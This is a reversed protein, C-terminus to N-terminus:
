YLEVLDLTSSHLERPGSGMKLVLTPSWKIYLTGMKICIFKYWRNQKSLFMLPNIRENLLCLSLLIISLWSPQDIIVEHPNLYKIVCVCSLRFWTMIPYVLSILLHKEKPRMLSYNGPRHSSHSFSIYFWYAQILSLLLCRHSPMGWFRWETGLSSSSLIPITIIESLWPCGRMMCMCPPQNRLLINFPGGNPLLTLLCSRDNGFYTSGLATIDFPGSPLTLYHSRFM